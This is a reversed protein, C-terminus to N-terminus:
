LEKPPTLGQLFTIADLKEAMRLVGRSRQLRVMSAM